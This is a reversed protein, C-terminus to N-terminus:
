IKPDWKEKALKAFGEPTPHIEDMWDNSPGTTGPKAMKLTERTDLLHVNPLAGVKAKLAKNFSDIVSKAIAKMEDDNKGAKVLIPHIWPGSARPGGMWIRAFAPRPQLYDYGHLIVPTDRN